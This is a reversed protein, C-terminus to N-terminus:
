SLAKRYRSPDTESDSKRRSTQKESQKTLYGRQLQTNKGASSHGSLRRYTLYRFRASLGLLRDSLLESDTTFHDPHSKFHFFLPFPYAPSISSSHSFSLFPSPSNEPTIRGDPFNQAAPLTMRMRPATTAPLAIQIRLAAAAPFAMQIRLAATAPLAIRM